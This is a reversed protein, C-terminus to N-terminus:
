GTCGKITKRHAKGLSNTQQLLGSFSEGRNKAEGRVAADWADGRGMGTAKNALYAAGVAQYLAYSSDGVDAKFQSAACECVKASKGCMDLVSDANAVPVSMLIAAITTILWPKSLHPSYHRINM